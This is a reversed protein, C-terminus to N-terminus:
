QANSPRLAEIIDCFAIRSIDGNWALFTNHMCLFWWLVWWTFWWFCEDQKSTLFGGKNHTRPDYRKLFPGFCLKLYISFVGNWALFTNRMCIFWWLVWWTFWRFPEDQHSEPSRGKNYTQPDYRKLFPGFRLKLYILFVGTWALFTNRMCNFLWPEWWTFWRFPDDHNSLLFGNKNHTQPDYLKLLAAFRLWLYILFVGNWALFTNRM